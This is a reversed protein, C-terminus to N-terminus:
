RKKTPPKTSGDNSLPLPPVAPQGSRETKNSLPPITPATSSEAVSTSPALPPITPKASEPTFIQGQTQESESFVEEVICDLEEITEATADPSSDRAQEITLAEGSAGEEESAFKDSRSHNSGTQGFGADLGQYEALEDVAEDFRAVAEEFGPESPQGARADRISEEIDSASQEGNLGFDSRNEADAAASGGIDTEEQPAAHDDFEVASRKESLSQGSSEQNRSALRDVAGGKKVAPTEGFLDDDFVESKDGEPILSKRDLRAIANRADEDEPAREAVKKWADLAEWRNKLEKDWIVAIEKRLALERERDDTRRLERGIALLLDQYRGAKKLCGHLRESAIRNEHDLQLLKLYVEAADSYRRLPGELLEGRRELLAITSESDLAEAILRNLHTDLADLRDTVLALKEIERYITEDNPFLNLGFRLLDFGGEGDNLENLLFESARLVLLSGVEPDVLEAIDKFAQVLKRRAAQDDAIDSAQDFERATREIATILDPSGNTIELAKKLFANARERDNIASEALKASRILLEVQETPSQSQARRREYVFLIEECRNARLGLDEARRLLMDNSPDLSFARVICDLAESPDSADSDLIEAHRVLLEIKDESDKAQKLLRDFVRALRDWAKAKAAVREVTALYSRDSLDTAFMRLYAELAQGPSNLYEEYVQGAANWHKAQESPEKAEHALRIYIAALAEEYGAKRALTRLLDEAAEDGREVLPVLRSWAANVDGLKESVLRAAQIQIENKDADSSELVLLADLTIILDRWNETQFLLKRLRRLPRADKADLDVWLKLARVAQEVNELDNEYIAALQETLNIRTDREAEMALQRELISALGSSDGIKQYFSLLLDLAPRYGPDVEDVIKILYAIADRTRNLRRDLLDALEFLLRRQAEPNHEFPILRRLCDELREPDDTEIAAKHMFRLAEEDEAITLVNQWIEAAKKLDQLRETYVRAIRRLLEVKDEPRKENTAYEGLLGIIEDFKQSRELVDILADLTELNKPALQLAQYFFAASKDSDFLKEDAIKGMEILLAHREVRASLELRRELSQLLRDYRGLERDIHEIRELAIKDGRAVELIQNYVEYAADPAATKEYLADALTHLLRLKNKEEGCEAIREKLLPIAEAYNELKMFLDCLLDRTKKDGPKLSYLQRYAETAEVIDNRKDYHIQAIRAILEAKTLSDAAALAERDLVQVLMDWNKTRELLRKLTKNAENDSPDLAVVALWASIAGDMDRLKTESIAAIERLRLKRVDVSLGPGRTYALLLDRLQAYDRKRRYYSELFSFAEPDSADLSLIERCYTAAEDHNRAAVLKQVANRLQAIRQDQSGGVEALTQETNPVDGRERKQEDGAYRSEDLLSSIAIRDVKAEIDFGSASDSRTDQPISGEELPRRETLGSGHQGRLENLLMEANKNGRKAAPTLCFVADDVQGSDVYAKALMFRRRDVEPSDDATNIYAVWYPALIELRGKKEALQELLDLAGDHYPAYTLSTQVFELAKDESVGQAVRYFLEAARRCDRSAEQEGLTAARQILLAALEYMAQIDGPVITLAARLAQVAGDLDNLERSRLQALECLLSIKRDADPEADAELAYLTAAQVLDRTAICIERAEFIAIRLSPDLKIARRYCNLAQETQQLRKNWIEGLRFCLLALYTSDANTSTLVEILNDLFEVLKAFEARGELFTMLRESAASNLPNQQIARQLLTETREPDNLDNLAIEAAEFFGQSSETRDIANTAWNEMLHSLSFFDEQQIYASRLASYAEEDNPNDRLRSLFQELSPTM